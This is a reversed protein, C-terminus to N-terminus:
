SETTEEHDGIYLNMYVTYAGTGYIHYKAEFKHEVVSQQDYIQRVHM